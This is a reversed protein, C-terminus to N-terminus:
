REGGPRDARNLRERFARAQAVLTDRFTELQTIHEQWFEIQAPLPRREIPVNTTDAVIDGGQGVRGTAGVPALADGFRDRNARTDQRSRELRLRDELRKLTGRAEEILEEASAAKRELLDAKIAWEERGDRVDFAAAAYYEPAVALGTEAEAELERYQNQLDEVFAGIREREAATNADLLEDQLRLLRADLAELLRDRAGDLREEVTEVREDLAAVDRARLQAQRQAEAIAGDNGAVRARQYADVASGLQAEAAQRAAIAGRWALLESQYVRQRANVSDALEQGVLPTSGACLLVAIGALVSALRTSLSRPGRRSRRADRARLPRSM